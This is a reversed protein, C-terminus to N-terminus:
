SLKIDNTDSIQSGMGDWVLAHAARYKNEPNDMTQCRFHLHIRNNTGDQHCQAWCLEYDKNTWEAM